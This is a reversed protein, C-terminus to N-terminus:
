LLTMHALMFFTHYCECNTSSILKGDCNRGRAKYDLCVSLFSGRSIVSDLRRLTPQWRQTDPIYHSEDQPHGNCKSEHVSAKLNSRVVTKGDKLM